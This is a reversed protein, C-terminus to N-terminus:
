IKPMAEDNDSELKYKITIENGLDLIEVEKGYVIRLYHLSNEECQHGLNWKKGCRQFNNEKKKEKELHHNNLITTIAKHVIIPQRKQHNL